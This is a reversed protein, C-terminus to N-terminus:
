AEGPAKYTDIDHTEPTLVEIAKEVGFKDVYKQLYRCCNMSQSKPFKNKYLDCMYKCRFNQQNNDILEPKEMNRVQNYKQRIKDKVLEIDSHGNMPISFPGGDRIFIITCIVNKYQPYMKRVAMNYLLLQTDNALKEPTKVPTDEENWAKREGTKYDIIEITDEDLETVLDITGKLSLSGKLIEGKYEYEYKAWEEDLTFDFFPEVDIVKRNRPDYFRGSNGVQYDIVMYVYNFVDKLHVPKWDQEIRTSYYEYCTMILRDVLEVGYRVHGSKLKCSNQNLYKSKNKRTKNIAEIEEDTLEIPKMVTKPNFSFKGIHEDEIYNIGKDLAQKIQALCEMTKHTITGVTTKVSENTEFFEHKNLGLVYEGFYKHECFDIAGLSSSRFYTVISM